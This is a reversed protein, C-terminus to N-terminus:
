ASLKRTVYFVVNGETRGALVHSKIYGEYCGHSLACCHLPYAAIERLIDADAENLNLIALTFTRDAEALGGDYVVAGGDLTPTRTLRRDRAQTDSGDALTLRPPHGFWLTTPTLVASAM